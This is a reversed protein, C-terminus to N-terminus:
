AQRAFEVEEDYDIQFIAMTQRGEKVTQMNHYWKNIREDAQQWNPTWAFDTKYIDTTM